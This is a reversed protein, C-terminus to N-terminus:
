PSRLVELAAELLSDGHGASRAMRMSNEAATLFGRNETALFARHSPDQCEQRVDALLIEDEPPSIIQRM